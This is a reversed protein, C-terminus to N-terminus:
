ISTLNATFHLSCIQNRLESLKLIFLDKNSSRKKKKKKKHFGTDKKTGSSLADESM